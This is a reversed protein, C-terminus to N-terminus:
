SAARYQHAQEAIDLQCSQATARVDVIRYVIMRPDYWAHAACRAHRLPFIVDEVALYYV